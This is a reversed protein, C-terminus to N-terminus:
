ELSAEVEALDDTVRIIQKIMNLREIDRIRRIEPLLRLGKVGFKVSLGMEIAELTGELMGQQRGEIMGKQRGELMGKQRGESVGRRFGIREVSTVYRVKKEEEYEGIEQWFEEEMYEPLAMMWDIFHFLRIVDEKKYGHEYLRRVLYLKWKKRGDADHRTEQTKLHATVALAFPNANEETVDRRDAYDLIKVSPFRIGVRCGWLEYGFRDPRWGKREDALVALSVVPRRFRDFIRYNYVFMREEFSREEQGQVEVHVLVWAEDGNKRWLRVLKDAYRRGLEADRTVQQFEKDLFLYGREWDTEEAIEPFFFTIFEQFYCELIEKWPSDFDQRETAGLSDM